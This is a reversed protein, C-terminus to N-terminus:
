IIVEDLKTFLSNDLQLLCIYSPNYWAKRVDRKCVNMMQYIAGEGEAVLCLRRYM